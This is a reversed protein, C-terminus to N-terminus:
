TVESLLGLYPYNLDLVYSINKESTIAILLAVFTIAPM